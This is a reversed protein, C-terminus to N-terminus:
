AWTDPASWAIGAYGYFRGDVFREIDPQIQPRVIQRLEAEGIQDGVTYVGLFDGRANLRPTTGAAASTPATRTSGSCQRRM